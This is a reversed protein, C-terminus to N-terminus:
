GRPWIPKPWGFLMATCRLLRALGAIFLLGFGWLIFSKLIWRYGLGGPAASTENLTFSTVVFPWAATLIAATFPLLLLTIGLFEVWARARGGWRESLVDVRVHRDASIAYSLGIIFGVAYVHWQLEELRISGIGFVYRQVVNYIIVLVLVAWIWSAARGIGNVVADLADSIRTRPLTFDAPSDDGASVGPVFPKESM